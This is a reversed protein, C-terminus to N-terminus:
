STFECRLTVVFVGFPANAAGFRMEQLIRMVKPMTYFYVPMVKSGRRLPIGNRGCGSMAPFREQMEAGCPHPFHGCTGPAGAPRRVSWGQDDGSIAGANEAYRGDRAMAPFREQMKPMGAM